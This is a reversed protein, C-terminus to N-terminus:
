FVMEMRITEPVEEGGNDLGRTFVNLKSIVQHSEKYSLQDIVKDEEFEMTSLLKAVDIGLRQSMTMIATKANDAIPKNDDSVSDSISQIADLGEQIEESAYIKNLGLSKRLVRAEAKTAASAVPAKNYPWPTNEPNVDFVDSIQFTGTCKKCLKRYTMQCGVTASPDQITPAKIVQMNVSMIDGVLLRFVRRLGDCTPMGDRLESNAFHSIVYDTWRPDTMSPRSDDGEEESSDVQRGSKMLSVLEDRKLNEVESMDFGRSVLQEIM